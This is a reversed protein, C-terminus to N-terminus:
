RLVSPRRVHADPQTRAQIRSAEGQIPTFVAGSDIEVALIQVRLGLFHARVDRPEVALRIKIQSKTQVFVPFRM